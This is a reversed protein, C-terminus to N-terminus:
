NELSTWQNREMHLNVKKWFAQTHEQHFLMKSNKKEERKERNHEEEKGGKNEMGKLNM